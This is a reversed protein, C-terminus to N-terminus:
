NNVHIDRTHMDSKSIFHVRKYVIKAIVKQSLIEIKPKSNQLILDTNFHYPAVRFFM